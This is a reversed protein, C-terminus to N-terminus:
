FPALIERVKKYGVQQMTFDFWDKGDATQLTVRTQFMAIQFLSIGSPYNAGDRAEATVEASWRLTYDGLSANGEPTAMPNISHMYQLANLTAADQANASQVRQLAIVNSNVWSLLAMGTTAILVLAVIAELLTFGRQRRPRHPATKM